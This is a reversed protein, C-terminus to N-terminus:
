LLLLGTYFPEKPGFRTGYLSIGCNLESSLM